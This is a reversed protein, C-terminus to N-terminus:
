DDDEIKLINGTAADVEVEQVRGNPRLFKLDYVYVGDELELEVGIMEGPVKSKAAEVIDALPRIRGEKLLRAATDPGVDDARAAGFALALLLAPSLARPLLSM